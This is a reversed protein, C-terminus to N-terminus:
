RGPSEEGGNEMDELIRLVSDGKELSEDLKFELKPTYKLIVNSSIRDQIQVRHRQLDHMVAKKETAGDRVSVYVKASRLSPSTEVRTITVAALDVEERNMIQFLSAGIERRLLENVRTM